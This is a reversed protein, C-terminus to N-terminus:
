ESVPASRLGKVLEIASGSCDVQIFAIGTFYIRALCGSLTTVLPLVIHFYALNVNGM